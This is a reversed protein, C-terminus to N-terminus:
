RDHWSSMNGFRAAALALRDELENAVSEARTSPTPSAGPPGPQVRTMAAWDADLQAPPPPSSAMLRAGPTAASTSRHHELLSTELDASNISDPSRWADAAPMYRQRQHQRQLDLASFM